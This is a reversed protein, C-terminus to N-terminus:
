PKINNKFVYVTSIKKKKKKSMFIFRYKMNYM